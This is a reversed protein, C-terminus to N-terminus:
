LRRDGFWEAPITAVLVSGIVTMLEGVGEEGVGRLKCVMKVEYCLGLKDSLRPKIRLKGLSNLRTDHPVAM